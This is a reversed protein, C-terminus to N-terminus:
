DRYTVRVDDFFGEVDCFNIDCNESLGKVPINYNVLVGEGMDVEGLFLTNMDITTRAIQVGSKKTYRFRIVGHLENISKGTNNIFVCWSVMKKTFDDYQAGLFVMYVTEKDMIINNKQILNQADSLLNNNEDANILKRHYNTYKLKVDM